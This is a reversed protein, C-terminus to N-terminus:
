GKKMRKYESPSMGMTKSFLRSFYYTDEIGIKHCIQNIKMDTFDLLWCAQRIKLQNFYTLPAYGTRKNFLNSFYSTSYGTHAALEDLSMRRELNEKMYHISVTVIDHQQGLDNKGADRYQRLYHLSGLYHHFVTCAYALNEWSYGMELTRFIEEFLEIRDSIRSDPGPRIGYPRDRYCAFSAALTGKFHIWYITWPNNKDAGYVHPLGPPLIFYQNELVPYERNGTRFWGEGEICYIFIFQNVPQARERFHHRAKPYYGIDTIHLLSAYPDKEMEQVVPQPLVLAREGSFGDKRKLM